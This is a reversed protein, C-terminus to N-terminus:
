GFVVFHYQLGVIGRAGCDAEIPKALKAATAIARRGFGFHFEAFRCPPANMIDGVMRLDANQVQRNDCQEDQKFARGIRVEKRLLALEADGTADELSRRDREGIDGGAIEDDTEPAQAM